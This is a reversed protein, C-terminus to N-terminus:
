YRGSIIDWARRLKDGATDPEADDPRGEMVAPNRGPEPLRAAAEADLTLVVAREHISEVEVADAFRWGGPGLRTDIVLGDFIDADVDALVHEVTGVKEGDRSFVDTGEELAM